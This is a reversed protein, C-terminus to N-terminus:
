PHKSRQSFSVWAGQCPCLRQQGRLIGRMEQHERQEMNGSEPLKDRRRDPKSESRERLEEKVVRSYSVEVKGVGWPPEIPQPLPMPAM